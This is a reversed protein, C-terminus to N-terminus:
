AASLRNMAEDDEWNDELAVETQLFEKFQNKYQEKWERTKDEKKKDSARM